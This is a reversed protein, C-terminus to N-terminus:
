SPTPLNESAQPEYILRGSYDVKVVFRSGKKIGRRNCFEKPIVVVLSGPRGAEYVNVVRITVEPKMVFM